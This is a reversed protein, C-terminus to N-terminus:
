YSEVYDQFLKMITKTHKGVGGNGIKHDNIRVIPAIRKTTSTTFAEDALSLDRLTVDREEVAFCNEALALTIKRTIGNLINNKPTVLTDGQFVFFNDRPCETIKDDQYYLIDSAKEKKKTPELRIANM